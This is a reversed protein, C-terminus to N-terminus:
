SPRFPALLAADKQELIEQAALKGIAAALTIGSHMTAAYIRPSVHGVVPLKGVPIPRIGQHFSELELPHALRLCSQIKDLLALAHQELEDDPAGTFYGEGSIVAMVHGEATQRIGVDPAAIIGNLIQGAPKSKIVLGPSRQQKIQPILEETGTGCAVVIVDAPLSSFDAVKVPRNWHIGVGHASADSLFTEIARLPDLYGEKSSYAAEVPVDRLAPEIEGAQASDVLRVDYGWSGHEKVFRHLESGAIEYLLSGCWNIEIAPLMHAIERWHRMSACRLDFYPRANGWTANLWAFTAQGSAGAGPGPAADYIQVNAGSKVLHWGISSGIIGAGIIAVNQGM